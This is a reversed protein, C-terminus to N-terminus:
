RRECEAAAQGLQVAAGAQGPATADFLGGQAPGSNVTELEPHVSQLRKFGDPLSRTVDASCSCPGLFPCRYPVVCAGPNRFWRGSRQAERIALQQHWLEARMEDLDSDLRAIEHRVFFREPEARMADAVRAAFEDPTEDTERQNAYLSGAPRVTGDALKSPKATYKREEVPTAKMPRLQPRKTVDYLITQVPHGLERAALVYLSMQQDLQLRLWYDSGPTIDEGTTKYDLIALRGDPLRFIRDVKGALRWIPTLAGTDPNRLPLEFDLETAVVALTQGAYRERHVVFMAAVMAADYPDLDGRATIAAEPDEGLDAAELAAHFATGVRLAIDEQEPAIGVEYRYYHRRPCARFTSMRSNTLLQTM